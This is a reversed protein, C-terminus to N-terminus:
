KGYFNRFKPRTLIENEHVTVSAGLNVVLVQHFHFWAGSVTVRTLLASGHFREIEGIWSINERREEHGDLQRGNSQLLRFRRGVDPQIIAPVSTILDM